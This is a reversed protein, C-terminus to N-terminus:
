NQLISMLSIQNTLNLNKVWNSILESLENKRFEGFNHDHDTILIEIDPHKLKQLKRYLPFFHNEIPVTLDNRSVIILMRNDLLGEAHEIFDYKYNKFTLDDMFEEFNQIPKGPGWCWDQFSQVLARNDIDNPNYSNRVVYSLDALGLLVIDKVKNNYIGAIATMASGYSHGGVIVKATDISYEKVNKPKFVFDIVNNFDTQSNEVTFIGQDNWLGRYDFSIVNINTKNLETALSLTGTEKKGPLGHMWILTPKLNKGPAEYFYANLAVDESLIEVQQIQGFSFTLLSLFSIILVYKKM